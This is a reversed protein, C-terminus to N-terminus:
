RVVTLRGTQVRDGSTLRWVYVGAPLEQQLTATHTGAQLAGEVVTAVERGRTDYLVLAVDADAELSFAFTAQQRMPNPGVRVDADSTLNSGASIEVNLIEAGGVWDSARVEGGVKTVGGKTM